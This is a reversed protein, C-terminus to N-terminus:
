GPATTTSATACKLLVRFSPPMTTTATTPMPSPGPRSPAARRCRTSMESATVTLTQTSSRCCTKTWAATATTTWGTACRVAGANVAADGDNCDESALFGDGDSDLIAEDLGETTGTVGEKDGPDCAFLASATCCMWFVRANMLDGPSCPSPHHAITGWKPPLHHVSQHFGRLMEDGSAGAACVDRRSHRWAPRAPYAPSVDSRGSGM